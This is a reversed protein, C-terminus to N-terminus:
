LKWIEYNEEEMCSNRRKSVVAENSTANKESHAYGIYFFVEEIVKAM